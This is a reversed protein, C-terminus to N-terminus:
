ARKALKSLFEAKERELREVEEAIEAPSWRARAQAALRWKRDRAKKRQKEVPSLRRTPLPGDFISM